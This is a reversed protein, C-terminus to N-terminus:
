FNQRLALHDRLVLMNKYNCSSEPCSVARQRETMEAPSTCPLVGPMNQFGPLHLLRGVERSRSPAFRGTPFRSKLTKAITGIALFHQANMTRLLLPSM